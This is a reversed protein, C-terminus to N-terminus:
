STHVNPVLMRGRREGWGPETRGCNLGARVPRMNSRQNFATMTPLKYVIM